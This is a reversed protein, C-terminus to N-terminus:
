TSIAENSHIFNMMKWKSLKRRSNVLYKWITADRGVYHCRERGFRPMEVPLDSLSAAFVVKKKTARYRSSKCKESIKMCKLLTSGQIYLITFHVRTCASLSQVPRVAWLPLLPIARSKWSWPVLLPSPDADCGPREKGGPFVLGKIYRTQIKM